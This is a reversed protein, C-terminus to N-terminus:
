LNGFTWTGFHAAEPLRVARRQSWTSLEQVGDDWRHTRRELNGNIQDGAQPAERGLTKWPIAVEVLWADPGKKVATEYEGTWDSDKGFVEDPYVSTENFLDWRSNDSGLKIHYCAKNEASASIVIEVVDASWFAGEDAFNPAGVAAMDPDKCEFAIYLAKDDFTMWAETAACLEKRKATAFNVFPGLKTAQEWAVDDLTGDIVLPLGAQSLRLINATKPAIPANEAKLLEQHALAFLGAADIDMPEGAAVKARGREIAPIMEPAVNKHRLYQAQQSYFWVYQDSSTLAWYVNHEVWQARQAPTLYTSECHSSLTNSLWDAFVAHGVQAQERYKDRLDEPIMTKLVDEKILKNTDHYHQPSRNYYSHEDGDIVRTGPDAGDLIGCMFANLLGYYDEKAVERYLKPDHVKAANTFRGMSGWFLSLFSTDPMHEEIANIVQVGRQRVMVEFEAFTKAEYQKQQSVKWTNDGQGWYVFEPDFLIGRCGGAAGIKALARINNLIEGNDAWLQDDFWDVKKGATMYIFNDTFRGWNIKKIVECTGDPSGMGTVYFPYCWNTHIALGDFPLDQFKDIVEALQGPNKLDHGFYILKKAQQQACGAGSAAAFLAVVAGIGIVCRHKM